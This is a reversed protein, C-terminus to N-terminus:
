FEKAGITINFYDQNLKFINSSERSVFFYDKHGSGILKILGFGIKPDNQPDWPYPDITYILSKFKPLANVLSKVATSESVIKNQIIFSGCTTEYQKILEEFSENWRILNQQIFAKPSMFVPSESSPKKPQQNTEQAYSNIVLHLLALLTIVFLNIKNLYRM